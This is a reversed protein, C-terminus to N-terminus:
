HARTPGSHAVVQRVIGLKAFDMEIRHALTPPAPTLERARPAQRGFVEDFDPDDPPVDRVMHPGAARWWRSGTQRDTVWDPRHEPRIVLSLGYHHHMEAPDLGLGLADESTTYVVRWKYDLIEAAVGAAELAQALERLEPHEPLPLPPTEGV